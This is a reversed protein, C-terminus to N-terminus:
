IFCGTLGWLIIRVSVYAYVGALLDDLVIGVGGKIREAQRIPFPKLIDFFRFAFFGLGLALWSSPLLLMTLLFGAVEDIVVEKPDEQDMLKHTFDSAWIATCTVAALIFLRYWLGAYQLVLVFPVAALSGFTGSVVPFLGAGFWTSLILATKGSLDSQRFIEKLSLSDPQPRPM